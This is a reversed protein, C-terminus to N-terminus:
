RGKKGAESIYKQEPFGICKEEPTSLEPCLRPKARLSSGPAAPEAEYENDHQDQNQEALKSSGPCHETFQETLTIWRRALNLSLFKSDAFNGKRCAWQTSLSM